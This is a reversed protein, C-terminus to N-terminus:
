GEQINPTYINQAKGTLILEKLFPPLIRYQDLDALPVWKADQIIQVTKEPDRGLKVEGSIYKAKVFIDIIHLKKPHNKLVRHAFFDSICIIKEFKVKVHTEELVEREAAQPITEDFELGGGPTIWYIQDRSKHQVMLVANNKVVIACVRTYIKKPNPM